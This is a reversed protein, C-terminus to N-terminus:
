SKASSGAQYRYLVWSGPRKGWVVPKLWQPASQPNVLVRYQPRSQREVMGYFLYIPTKAVRGKVFAHLEDLSKLHPLVVREANAYYPLHPKRVLITAGQEVERLAVPVVEQIEAIQKHITVYTKTLALGGALLFMLVIVSPIWARLSLPWEARAVRWCMEGVGAGMLPILFLFYRPDFPKFNVLLLQALLASLVVMLARDWRMAVLFFLGPFFLLYLPPELLQTFKVALLDFLDALYARAIRSPDHLLVATLSDFRGSVEELADRSARDSETFYTAALSVHTDPPFVNSGTLAGYALMLIVPLAFGATVWSCQAIKDRAAARSLLPALVFLALTLGNTRAVVGLGAALGCAWWLLRSGSNLAMIALLCSGLFLAQFLVDSTALASYKVFVDSGVLALVAGWAAPRGGLMFFLRYSILMVALSSLVSVLVGATLWDHAVSYFVGILMPYLAPHWPSKLPEGALFRRADPLFGGVFDTEIGYGFYSRGTGLFLVILGYLTVLAM